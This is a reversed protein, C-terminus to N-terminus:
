ADADADPGGARSFRTWVDPPLCSRRVGKRGYVRLEGSECVLSFSGTPGSGRSIAIEQVDELVRALRVLQAATERKQTELVPPVGSSNDDDGDVQMERMEFFTGREHIGLRLGQTQSIILQPYLENWDLKDIFFKSRSAVELLSEQPVQTGARIIKLGTSPSSPTLTSSPLTTTPSTSVRSSPLINMNELADAIDDVALEHAEKASCKTDSTGTETTTATTTDTALCADVEFRVIMKMDLMDQKGVFFRQSSREMNYTHIGHYRVYTIARYHDSGPCGPAARSTADEFAFGYSKNLSPERLRPEWRNLVITKIGIREVDIRFDRVEKGESPNLWRMLKRLANRDTVVDVAPWDVPANKNDHIADAAAFLPLLPYDSMRASNQDVLHAGTDPELTFPVDRETWIAPSGADLPLVRHTHAIDKLIPPPSPM